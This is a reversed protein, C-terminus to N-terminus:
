DVGLDIWVHERGRGTTAHTLPGIRVLDENDTYMDLCYQVGQHFHGDYVLIIGRQPVRVLSSQYMIFGDLRLETIRHELLSVEYRVLHTRELHRLFTGLEGVLQQLVPPLAVLIERACRKSLAM